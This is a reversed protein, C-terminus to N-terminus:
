NKAISKFLNACIEALEWQFIPVIQQCGHWAILKSINDGLYPVALERVDDLGEEMPVGFYCKACHTYNPWSSTDEAVAWHDFNPGMRCGMHRIPWYGPIDFVEYPDKQLKYGKGIM